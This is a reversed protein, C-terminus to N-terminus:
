NSYGYGNESSVRVVYNTMKSLGTLQIQGRYTDDETGEHKSKFTPPEAKGSVEVMKEDTGYKNTAKCTYVGFKSEDLLKPPLTLSHHNGIKSTIGWKNDDDGMKQGNKVWEGM